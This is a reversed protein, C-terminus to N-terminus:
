AARAPDTVQIFYDELSATELQLSSLPWGRTCCMQAIQGRLEPTTTGRVLLRTLPGQAAQTEIATVGPLARLAQVAEAAPGRLEVLVGTGSKQRLEDPSGEAVIKGRAIIIVRKCVAEVERLIHTSLLVTHDGALEGILKRAEMVQAPDLGVTPEDFVLIPPNHLLADAIGVRQRYGKSLTRIMAHRRDQLWCRELVADIRQRRQARGMGRLQGRYNLFEGVRMETYLPTHEPLYGVHQRVELSQKFVDFGAVTAHGATPPMYCTLMRLTTTKGAGNRGLIGVVQGGPVNFSISDAARFTGYTKTLGEAVIDSSAM